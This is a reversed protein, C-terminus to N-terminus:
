LKTAEMPTPTYLSRKLLPLGGAPVGDFDLAYAGIQTRASPVVKHAHSTHVQWSPGVVVLGNGDSWDGMVHRHARCVVKPVPAGVRAAQVQEEALVISLQTAELSARATTGIHHRFVMLTGNHELRWWFASHEGTAPDVEAGLREGIGAEASGVHCETGRVVFVREAGEALPLLCHVAAKAHVGPDAHFIEPGNRHHAGEVLDGMLVLAYPRGRTVHPVWSDCFHRWCEWIWQQTRSLGFSHGDYTAFDPPCLAFTSGCHIDGVVILVPTAAM